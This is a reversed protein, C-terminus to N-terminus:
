SLLVIRGTKCNLFPGSRSVHPPSPSANELSPSRPSNLLESQQVTHKSNLWETLQEPLPAQLWWWTADGRPVVLPLPVFHHSDWSVTQRCSALLRQGLSPSLLVQPAVYWSGSRFHPLSQPLHITVPFHAGLDMLSHNAGKMELHNREEGIASTQFSIETQSPLLSPTWSCAIQTHRTSPAFCTCRHCGYLCQVAPPHPALSSSEGRGM